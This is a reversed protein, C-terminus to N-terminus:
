KRPGPKGVFTAATLSPINYDRLGMHGSWGQDYDHHIDSRDMACNLGTNVKQKPAAGGLFFNNTFEGRLGYWRIPFDAEQLGLKGIESSTTSYTPNEPKAKALRANHEELSSPQFRAPMPTPDLFSTNPGSPYPAPMESSLFHSKLDDPPLMSHQGLVSSEFRRRYFERRPEPRAGRHLRCAPSAHPPALAAPAAARM